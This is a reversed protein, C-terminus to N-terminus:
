GDDQATGEGQGEDSFEYAALDDHVPWQDFHEDGWVVWYCLRGHFDRVDLIRGWEGSRYAAWHCSRIWQGVRESPELAARPM